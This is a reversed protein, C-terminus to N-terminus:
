RKAVIQKFQKQIGAVDTVKIIYLGSALSSMDITNGNQKVPIKHGGASFVDIRKIANESTVTLTRGQMYVAM